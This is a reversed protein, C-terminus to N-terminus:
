VHARGIENDERLFSDGYVEDCNAANYTEWAKRQLNKKIEELGTVFFEQRSILRTKETGNKCMAQLCFIGNKKAIVKIETKEQNRYEIEANIATAGTNDAIRWEIDRYTANEPKIVAKVLVEKQVADMQQGEPTCIEIKRIPIEVPIELQKNEEIM